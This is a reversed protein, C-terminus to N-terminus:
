DISKIELSEIIKHMTPISEKEFNNDVTFSVSLYSNNITPVLFDYDLTGEIIYPNVVAGVGEKIKFRSSRWPVEKHEGIDVIGSDFVEDSLTYWEENPKERKPNYYVLIRLIGNTDKMSQFDSMDEFVDFDKLLYYCSEPPNGHEEEMTNPLSLSFTLIVPEDDGQADSSIVNEVEIFEINLSSSENLLDSNNLINSSNLGGMDKSSEINQNENDSCGSAVTVCCVLILILLKKMKKM